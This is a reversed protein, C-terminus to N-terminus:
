ASSRTPVPTPADQHKTMGAMVQRMIRTRAFRPLLSLGSELLKTLAGPRVTGRRGLSRLTERAVTAPDVTAGMRMNARAAFASKVPGPACAVVDVGLPRWEHRLGEAFTQVWAKTAAYHAARPVGQFAVISSLLVVGGDGRAAFRAGFHHTLRLVADCNVQLMSSESEIDGDLFLGSTGFGAAAILLGVDLKATAEMVRHVGDGVGLDTAVSEVRVGHRARLNEAVEDLAGQRRAVLVLDLGAAAIQHAFARGIGETAGTVVAVPGYDRRLPTDPRASSPSTRM